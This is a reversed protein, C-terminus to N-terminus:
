GHKNGRSWHLPQMAQAAANSYILEGDMRTVWVGDSLTELALLRLTDMELLRESIEVDTRTTTKVDAEVRQRPQSTGVLVRVSGALVSPASAVRLAATSVINRNAIHTTMDATEQTTAHAVDPENHGMGHDAAPM